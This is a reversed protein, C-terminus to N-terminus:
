KEGKTIGEIEVEARPDEPDEHRYAHLEEVQRDDEWAVGKLSDWLCKLYNDLDGSKQPRYLHLTFRVPGALPRVGQQLATLAADYKYWRGDASLVRRGRVTAYMANVSIPYPLTAKM